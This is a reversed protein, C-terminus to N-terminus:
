AASRKEKSVMRYQWTRQNPVRVKQIEAGYKRLERLRRLGETGRAANLIEMASHWRGDKMLRYVDARQTHLAELDDVELIGDGGLEKIKNSM